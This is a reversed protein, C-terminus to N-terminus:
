SYREAAIERAFQGLETWDPKLADLGNERYACWWRELEAPEVRVEQARTRLGYKNFDKAVTEGLMWLRRQAEAHKAAEVDDSDDSKNALLRATQFRLATILVAIYLMFRFM